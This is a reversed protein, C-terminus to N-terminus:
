TSGVMFHALRPYTKERAFWEEGLQRSGISMTTVSAPERSWETLAAVLTEPKGATFFRGARFAELLVALEGPLSNLVPLGAAMYDAVKNPCAILSEGRLPNVGVHARAIVKNLDAGSLFGHLRVYEGLGRAAVSHEFEGWLEGTGAIEWCVDLGQRRAQLVGKLVTTLDQSRGVNGLYLLCLPEGKRWVRPPEAAPGIALAGCSPRTNSFGATGNSSIDNFWAGLYALHTPCNAGLSRAYDLFARGVGSIRDAAAFVGRGRRRWHELAFRAVWRPGPIFAAFAEPWADQIDLTVPVGWERGLRVAVEGGEVPPWSAVIREPRGHAVAYDHALRELNRGFVVHSRLRALGVNARYAPVPVLRIQFEMAAAHGLSQPMTGGSEHRFQKRRHSFNATWWTVHHGQEALIQCLSWYRGPRGPEGPLEDFPNVIWVRM